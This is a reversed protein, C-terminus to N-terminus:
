PLLPALLNNFNRIANARHSIQNKEENSLQAVTKSSAPVVFLPDYGFGNSGKQVRGIVGELLGQTEILVKEPTALCISCVFRATRKKDPVDKLLDLLKAMNKHDLMERNKEKAGSFRASNVGPAGDLADVMLGSDDAITWLGTQKAYGLAKKRANEAFTKGDEEVENINPFDALSLWEVDADLMASLEKMKGPNTTAILIKMM